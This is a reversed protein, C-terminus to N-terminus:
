GLFRSLQFMTASNKPRALPSGAGWGCSNGGGLSDAGLADAVLGAAETVSGGGAETAARRGSDACGADAGAVGVRLAMFGGAGFAGAGLGRALLQDLSAELKPSSDAASGSASTSASASTAGGNVAGVGDGEM